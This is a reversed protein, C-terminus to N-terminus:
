KVIITWYWGTVPSGEYDTEPRELRRYEVTRFGMRLCLQDGVQPVDVGQKAEFEEMTDGWVPSTGNFQERCNSLDLSPDPDYAIWTMAM